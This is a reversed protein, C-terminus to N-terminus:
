FRGAGPNSPDTPQWYILPTIGKEHLGRALAGPFACTGRGEFCAWRGGRDGWTSWLTWTAPRVGMSVTVADVAALDPSSQSATGMAIPRRAAAGSAVCLTLVLAVVPLPILSRRM